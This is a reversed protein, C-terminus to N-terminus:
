NQQHGSAAMGASGLGPATQGAIVTRGSAAAQGCRPGASPPCSGLGFLGCFVSDGVSGGFFFPRDWPMFTAMKM